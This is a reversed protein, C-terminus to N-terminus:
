SRVRFSVTRRSAVIHGREDIVDLQAYYRGTRGPQPVWVRDQLQDSRAESVYSNIQELGSPDELAKRTGSRYLTTEVTLRRGPDGEILLEYTLEVGPRGLLARQAGAPVGAARSNREFRELRRAARLYERLSVGDLASVSDIDVNLVAPAAADEPLHDIVLFAVTALTGAIGVLVSAQALTLRGVRRNHRSRAM